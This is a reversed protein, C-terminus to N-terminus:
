IPLRAAQLLYANRFAQVIEVARGADERHIRLPM